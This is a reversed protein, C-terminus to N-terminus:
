SKQVFYGPIIKKKVNRNTLFYTTLTSCTDNSHSCAVCGRMEDVAVFDASEHSALAQFIDVELYNKEHKMFNMNERNKVKIKKKRGKYLHESQYCNLSYHHSSTVEFYTSREHQPIESSSTTGQTNAMNTGIIIEQKSKVISSWQVLLTVHPM